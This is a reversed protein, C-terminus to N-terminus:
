HSRQFWHHSPEVPKEGRVGFLVGIHTDLEASGDAFQYASSAWVKHRMNFSTWCKALSGSDDIAADSEAYRGV